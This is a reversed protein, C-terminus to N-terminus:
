HQWLRHGLAASPLELKTLRESALAVSLLQLDMLLLLLAKLNLISMLTVMSTFGDDSRIAGSTESGAESESGAGLSGRSSKRVSSPKSVRKAPIPAGLSLRSARYVLNELMDYSARATEDAVVRLVSSIQDETLAITAHGRLLEVPDAKAFYEKLMSRSSVKLPEPKGVNRPPPETSLSSTEEVEVMQWPPGALTLHSLTLVLRSTLALACKAQNNASVVWTQITM